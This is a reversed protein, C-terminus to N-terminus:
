VGVHTCAYSSAGRLLLQTVEVALDFAGGRVKYRIFYASYLLSNICTCFRLLLFDIKPLGCLDIALAHCLNCLNIMGLYPVYRKYVARGRAERKILSVYRSYAHNIYYM